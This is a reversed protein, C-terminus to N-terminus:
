AQLGGTQAAVRVSVEGSLYRRVVGAEEVLLAGSPDVGRAIGHREGDAATRVRVPRGRLADRASWADLFAALGDCEFVPLMTALCDLVRAALANRSVPEGCATSADAWSQDIRGEAMRPPMTVNIGIGIVAVTEGGSEGSLEILTGALKADRWVIDNPWKLGADRVKLEDLARLVALGVVLPLGALAEPGRAFRWLLSLYLNRACPSVWARGLRGRGARQSEALVVSGSPLSSASRLLESNTSDIEHHVAVTRIRERADPSLVRRIAEADLLELPEALRYGRGPVADIEFGAGRLARLAKWVAARGVGLASGLREGSHFRGDSLLRLLVPAHSM